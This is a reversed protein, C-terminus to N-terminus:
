GDDSSLHPRDLLGSSNADQVQAIHWTLWAIHPKPPALMEEPTLDKLAERVMERVRGLADLALAAAEMIKRWSLKVANGYLEILNSLLAPVHKSGGLM